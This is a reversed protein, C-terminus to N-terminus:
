NHNTPFFIRGGSVVLIPLAVGGIGGIDPSITRESVCSLAPSLSLVYGIFIFLYILSGEKAPLPTYAIFFYAM